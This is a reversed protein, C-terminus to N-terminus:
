QRYDEYDEEEEMDDAADSPVTELACWASFAEKKETLSVDILGDKIYEDILPVVEYKMKRSLEDFSSAMFYSHGVMLDDIGLNDTLRSEANIFQRIDDFLALATTGLGKEKEAEYYREVVKRDAEMTVFAFRRRLAYDLTGTSRDTTNMTGIIYLNDPVGFLEKSYPLTAALPHNQGIRKDAEILTILEGFIKSVNGRNIEDIILVVPYGEKAATCARKFIGDETKYVVGLPKGAADTQITPKMGEVFDEYDMSQHFTTFFIQSGTLLKYRYMVAKHDALDIDGAGLVGLAIAATSYTKGTGPAGQLIINRKENLLSIENSFMTSRSPELVNEVPKHLKELLSTVTEGKPIYFSKPAKTGRGFKALFEQFEAELSKNPFCPNYITSLRPDTEGGNGTGLHEYDNNKYGVFKSPGFCLKGNILEVVLNSAMTFKLIVEDMIQPDALYSYITKINKIVEERYNVREDRRESM